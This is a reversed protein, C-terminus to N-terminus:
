LARLLSRRPRGTSETHAPWRYPVLFSLHCTGGPAHAWRAFSPCPPMPNPSADLPCTRRAILACIAPPLTSPRAILACV